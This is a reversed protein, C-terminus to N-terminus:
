VFNGCELVSTLCSKKIHQLLKCVFFACTTQREKHEVVWQSGNSLRVEGEWMGSFIARHLKKPTDPKGRCRTVRAAQLPEAEQKQHSRRQAARQSEAQGGPRDAM